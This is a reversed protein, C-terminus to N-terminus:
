FQKFILPWNFSLTWLVTGLVPHNNSNIRNVQKKVEQTMWKETRENSSIQQASFFGTGSPLCYYCCCCCCSYDKFFFDLLSKLLVTTTDALWYQMNGRLDCVACPMPWKKPVYKYLPPYRFCGLAAISIVGATCIVAIIITETFFLIVM